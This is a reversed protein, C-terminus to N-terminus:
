SGPKCPTCVQSVPESAQLSAVSTDTCSINERYFMKDILKSAKEKSYLQMHVRIVLIFCTMSVECYKFHMYLHLVINLVIKKQIRM